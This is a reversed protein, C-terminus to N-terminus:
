IHTGKLFYNSSELLTQKLPNTKGKKKKQPVNNEQHARLAGSSSSTQQPVLHSRLVNLRERERNDM